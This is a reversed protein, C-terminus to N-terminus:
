NFYTPKSFLKIIFFSIRNNNKIGRPDKPCSFISFLNFKLGSEQIILAFAEQPIHM